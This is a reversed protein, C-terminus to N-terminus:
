LTRAKELLRASVYQCAAKLTKDDEFLDFDEILGTAIEEVVNDLDSKLEESVTMTLESM